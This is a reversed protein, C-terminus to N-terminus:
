DEPCEDSRAGCHTKIFEIFALCLPSPSRHRHRTLYFRRQLNMGEIKMAAVAGSEVREEVAILSLISVGMGARIGQIVAQTSGMEAIVNMDELGFGSEALSQQISKRTGSGVERLIFPEALLEAIRVSKRGAWRHGAPVVLRMEDELLREQGIERDATRAGVVGLEVIGERVDHIIKETDGNVLAVQVDPYDRSFRGIIAPLIYGGPITSGGVTLRGRIKGVFDALVTETEDRLALIRRAYDYLLTGAKTPVAEKSLRDILRCGFHSELDKIHSSVTPQSLHIAKGARSFSKHEVVKCFINLQWLDM